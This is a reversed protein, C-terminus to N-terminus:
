PKPRSCTSCPAIGNRDCRACRLRVRFTERAKKGGRCYSCVTYGSGLCTGCEQRGGFYKGNVYVMPLGDYVLERDSKDLRMRDALEDAFSPDLNLDRFEAKIKLAKLLEVTDRCREWVRRLIGCTTIYVVVKNVEEQIYDRQWQAKIRMMRITNFVHLRRGRISGHRTLLAGESSELSRELELRMRHLDLLIAPLNLEHGM